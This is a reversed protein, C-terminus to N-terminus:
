SAIEVDCHDVPQGKILNPGGNSLDGFKVDGQLKINMLVVGAHWDQDLSQQSYPSIPMDYDTLPPSVVVPEKHGQYTPPLLYAMTIQQDRYTAYVHLPQYEVGIRSNPNRSFLTVQM